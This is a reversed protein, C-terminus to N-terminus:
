PKDRETIIAIPEFSLVTVRLDIADSCREVGVLGDGLNFHRRLVGRAGDVAQKYVQAVTCDDGWSGKVPIELMVRVRAVATQEKKSESAM